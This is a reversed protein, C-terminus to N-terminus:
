RQSGALWRVRGIVGEKPRLVEFAQPCLEISSRCVSILGVISVFFTMVKPSMTVRGMKFAVRVLERALGCCNDQCNSCDFKRRPRAGGQRKVQGSGQGGRGTSRIDRAPWVIDDRTGEVVGQVGVGRGGGVGKGGQRLCAGDGDVGAGRGEGLMKGGKGHVYSMAKAHFQLSLSLFFPHDVCLKHRNEVM